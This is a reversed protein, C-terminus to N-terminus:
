RILVVTGKRELKNNKYDTGKAYWVYTGPSQTAGGFTGDWGDGIQTTSFLLQGWRNYISFADVSKLGLALPKLIDNNGDGNPSFASPVFLDPKVKFLKVNITDTDSCGISNSVRVVYEINDEPLAVPNAINPNNLWQVPSWSFNTSGTALLQLPQELVISTDRPGADATIVAVNVIVTDYVPKPCGLVDRVAVIYRVSATPKVSVPNPINATNLFAVPSWAYL